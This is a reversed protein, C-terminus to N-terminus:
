PRTRRLWYGPRRRVHALAYIMVPHPDQVEYFFLYPFRPLRMWRYRQRYPSGQEAALAIRQVAVTVAAQFRQAAWPSRQVYWRFAERIERGARAHLVVARVPM